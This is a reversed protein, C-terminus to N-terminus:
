RDPVPVEVVVRAGGTPGNGLHLEGGLAAVRERMGTLGYTFVATPAGFGVGDDEICVRVKTDRAITIIARTARSHKIVNALAEQVLRYLAEEYAAPLREHPGLPWTRQDPHGAEVRLEVQLGSRQQVVACHAELAGVLGHQELVADHLDVLLARMQVTVGAALHCVMDLAARPQAPQTDWLDAATQASLQLGILTQSASDHLDRAIRQREALTAARAADAVQEACDRPGRSLDVRQEVCDRVHKREKLHGYQVPISSM